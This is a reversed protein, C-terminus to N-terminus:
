GKMIQYIWRFFVFFEFVGIRLTYYRLASIKKARYVDKLMKRFERSRLEEDLKKRIKFREVLKIM